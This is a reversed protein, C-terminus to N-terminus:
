LSKVELMLLYLMSSMRNLARLIDPRTPHGDRDSFADCAKLEAERCACRARNLRAIVEGDAASPMFHAIGYYEQPFHSRRRLESETLGCLTLHEMPEELVDFRLINRALSLIEELKGASKPAALQALILEAELTDMAGRFLIRPHSKPVLIERNLHTMHEPKEELYGGSLLTYREPRIESPSIIEIKEKCLWDRAGPTLNDGKGLCFVRKGDKNRINARVATETYLM